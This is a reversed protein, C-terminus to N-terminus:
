DGKHMSKLADRILRIKMTHRTKAEVLVDSLWEAWLDARNPGIWASDDTPLRLDRLADHRQQIADFRTDPGDSM